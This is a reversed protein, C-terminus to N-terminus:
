SRAKSAYPACRVELISVFIKKFGEGGRIFCNRYRCYIWNEDAGYEEANAASGVDCRSSVLIVREEYALYM